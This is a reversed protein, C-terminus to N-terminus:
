GIDQSRGQWKLMLISMEQSPPSHYSGSAYMVGQATDDNRRSRTSILVLYQFRGRRTLTPIKTTKNM